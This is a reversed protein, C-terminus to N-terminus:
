KGDWILVPADVDYRLIMKSRNTHHNCSPCLPVICFRDGKQISGIPKGLVIHAGQLDYAMIDDGNPCDRNACLYGVDDKSLGTTDEWLDIFDTYTKGNYCVKDDATRIANYFPTGEKLERTCRKKDILTSEMIPTWYRDLM